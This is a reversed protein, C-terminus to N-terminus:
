ASRDSRTRQSRRTGEKRREEITVWKEVKRTLPEFSIGAAKLYKKILSSINEPNDGDKNGIDAAALKVNLDQLKVDFGLRRVLEELIM